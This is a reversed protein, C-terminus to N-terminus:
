IRLQADSSVAGRPAGSHRSCASLRDFFSFIKGGGGIASNGPTGIDEGVVGLVSVPCHCM